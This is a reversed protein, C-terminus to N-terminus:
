NRLSKRESNYQNEIIFALFHFSTFIFEKQFHIEIKM